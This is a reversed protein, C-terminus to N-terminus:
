KEVKFSTKEQATSAGQKVTAQIVYEGPPMSEASSSMIYPIRGQKDAAPLELGGKGVVKGDKIYELEVMPKAANGAEPYVVFFMSLTSGKAAQVVNTLTPTVRGGQFVFADSPDLDKAGPAYSRVLSIGSISVAGPAALEFPERQAGIKGSERDMVASELTYKGPALTLSDKYVFNGMKIAALNEPTSQIPLDRTFKQVVTGSADKVLAVLSLRANFHKAGDEKFELGAVPVEIVVGTAVGQAGPQFRVLRSHFPIDHPLAPANLASLLPPEFPMMGTKRLEMPLAFYGNRAQAILDKKGIEVKIRRFSGDYNAIGPNYSVEYYSGIEENIKRLPVRLDNSDAVLFGGTGDALNRLETQSNARMSMEADDSAKVM